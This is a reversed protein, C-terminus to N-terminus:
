DYTKGCVVAEAGLRRIADRKVAPVAESLCVVARIGLRRAVYSLARGHNGSSVTIAGRERADPALSLLKNAAGRIKFSGTEQLSELKLYVAGGVREALWDSHVLPTRRIIPAIKQRALYVDRLTVDVTSM